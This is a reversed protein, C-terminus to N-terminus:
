RRTRWASEGTLIRAERRGDRAIEVSYYCDKTEDDYSEDLYYVCGCADCRLWDWWSAQEQPDATPMGCWPCDM